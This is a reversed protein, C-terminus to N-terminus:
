AAKQKGDMMARVGKIVLWGSLVMHLWQGVRRELLVQAEDQKRWMWTENVFVVDGDQREVGAIVVGRVVPGRYSSPADLAMEVRENGEVGGDGRYVVRWFGNVRDDKRFSLSQIFQTDFTKRAAEEGAAARLMVAQPAWSFSIMTARVYNTLAASTDTNFNYPLSSPHFSRSVIREYALVWESDDTKVEQPLSVPRLINAPIAAIRKKRDLIGSEAKCERSVAHNLYLLYVVPAALPLLALSVAPKSTLLAAINRM